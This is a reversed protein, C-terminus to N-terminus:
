IGFTAKITIGFKLSVWIRLINDKDLIKGGPVM